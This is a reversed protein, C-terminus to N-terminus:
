RCEGSSCDYQFSMYTWQIDYAAKYAFCYADTNESPSCSNNRDTGASELFDNRADAKGDAAGCCTKAQVQQELQVAFIVALLAVALILMHMSKRNFSEPRRIM